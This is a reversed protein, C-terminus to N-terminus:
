LRPADISEILQELIVDSTQGDIEAEATPSVRHRLSPIAIAKIDAPTVYDREQLLAYVRACRV